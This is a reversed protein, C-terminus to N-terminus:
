GRQLKLLCVHSFILRRDKKPMGRSKPNRSGGTPTKKKLIGNLRIRGIPRFNERWNMTLNSYTQYIKSTCLSMVLPPDLPPALSAGGGGAWIRKIERLKQSFKAFDYTPAGGGPFNAGGGGPFGPDAM